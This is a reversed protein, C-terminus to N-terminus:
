WTTKERTVHATKIQKQFFLENNSIIDSIPLYTFLFFLETNTSVNKQFIGPYNTKYIELWKKRQNFISENIGVEGKDQANLMVFQCALILTILISKKMKQFSLKFLLLCLKLKLIIFLLGKIM